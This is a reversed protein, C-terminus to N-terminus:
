ANFRVLFAAHEDSNLGQESVSNLRRVDFSWLAAEDLWLGPFVRSRFIGDSDPQHFRYCGSELIRWEIRKEEVMVAIYEDVGAREYLGLKPGLDYSRSSRCIEAILEPAGTALGDTVTTRGGAEPAVLLASDPQPVSDLMLWTANSLAQCVPTYAAYLGIVGGKIMSNCRGHDASIPPPMYVVGDILEAFKLAPMKYWLDLFEERSMRDGPEFLVPELSLPRIM